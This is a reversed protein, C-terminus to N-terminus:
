KRIIRNSCILILYMIVASHRVLLAPNFGVLSKM